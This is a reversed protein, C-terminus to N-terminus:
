ARRSKRRRKVAALAGLGALMLGGAAPLPVPAVESIHVSDAAMAGYAYVYEGTVSNYFYISFLGSSGLNNKLSDVSAGLDVPNLDATYLSDDLYADQSVVGDTFYQEGHEEYLTYGVLDSGVYSVGLFNPAITYSQGGVTMTASTMTSSTANYDGSVIYDQNADTTHVNGTTEFVYTTTYSLGALDVGATGFVGTQDYGSTITGTYVAEM